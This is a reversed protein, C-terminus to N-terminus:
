QPHCESSSPPQSVENGSGPSAQNPNQGVNKMQCFTAHQMLQKIEDLALTKGQHNQQAQALEPNLMSSPQPQQLVPPINASVQNLPMSASIQQVPMSSMGM